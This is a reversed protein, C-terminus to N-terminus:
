RFIIEIILSKITACDCCFQSKKRKKITKKKKRNREWGFKHGGANPSDNVFPTGLMMPDSAELVRKKSISGQEHKVKEDEDDTKCLDKKAKEILNVHETMKGMNKAFMHMEQVTKHVNLADDNGQINKVEMKAIQQQRACALDTEMFLNKSFETQKVHLSSGIGDDLSDGWGNSNM